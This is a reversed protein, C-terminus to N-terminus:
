DRIHMRKQVLWKLDVNQIAQGMILILSNFYAIHLKDEFLGHLAWLSLMWLWVRMKKQCCYYVTVMVLILAIVSFLIGYRLLISIYINDVYDYVGQAVEGDAYLGAGVFYIKQGLLSFGRQVYANRQVERRGGMMANLKYMWEVSTDCKFTFWLSIAVCIPYIVVAIRDVIKWLIFDTTLIKPWIKVILMIVAVLITFAGSLEAKCWRYFTAGFMIVLAIETLTVKEKRMVALIMAVNMIYCPLILPYCFGFCHRYVAGETFNYNLIYGEGAAWMVFASLAITLFVAIKYTNKLNVNRSGFVLMYVCMMISSDNKEAFYWFFFCIFLGFAERIDYKKVFLCTLGERLLMLGIMGAMVIIYRKPTILASFMSSYLISATFYIVVSFYYIFDAILKVKSRYKENLKIRACNAKAEIM